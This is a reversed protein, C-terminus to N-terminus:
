FRGRRDDVAVRGAVCLEASGPDCGTVLDHHGQGARVPIGPDEVIRVCELDSPRVSGAVQGKRVTRM